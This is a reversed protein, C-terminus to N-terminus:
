FRLRPLVGTRISGLYRLGFGRWLCPAENNALYDMSCTPSPAFANLVVGRGQVFRFNSWRHWPKPIWGELGCIGGADPNAGEPHPFGDRENKM